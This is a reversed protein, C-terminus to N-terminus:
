GRGLRCEQASSAWSCPLAPASRSAVNGQAAMQVKRGRALIESAPDAQDWVGPLQALTQREGNVAVIEGQCAGKAMYRLKRLPHLSPDGREVLPGQGEEPEIKLPLWKGKAPTIDDITWGGAKRMRHLLKERLEAWREPPLHLLIHIHPGHGGKPPNEDVFVWLPKICANPGRCWDRLSTLFRKRVERYQQNARRGQVWGRATKFNITLWTNLLANHHRCSFKYANWIERLQSAPIHSSPDVRVRKPKGATPGRTALEPKFPINTM